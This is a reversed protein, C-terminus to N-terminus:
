KPVPIMIIHFTHLPKIAKDIHTPHKLHRLHRLIKIKGRTNLEGKFESLNLKAGNCNIKKLVASEAFEKYLKRWFIRVFCVIEEWRM